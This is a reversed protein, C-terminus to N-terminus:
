ESSGSIKAPLVRTIFWSGVFAVLSFCALAIIVEWPSLSFEPVLIVFPLVGEFLQDLGPVMYGSNLEFRRKIFSSVLDGTMSLLGTLFGTLLPFGVIFGAAVGALIGGLTGRVTKHEGWLPKNDFFTRGRDLPIDGKDGFLFSLLPPASNVAWLVILIKIIILMPIYKDVEIRRM